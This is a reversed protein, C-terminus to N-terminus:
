PQQMFVAVAQALIYYTTCTPTYMHVNSVSIGLLQYGLSIRLKNERNEGLLSNAVTISSNSSRGTAGMGSTDHQAANLLVVSVTWWATLFLFTVGEVMQMWRMWQWFSSLHMATHFWTHIYTHTCLHCHSRCMYQFDVVTCITYSNYILM